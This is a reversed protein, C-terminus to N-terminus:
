KKFTTTTGLLMGNQQVEAVLCSSRTRVQLFKIRDVDVDNPLQALRTATIDGEEITTFALVGERQLVQQCASSLEQHLNHSRFTLALALELGLTILATGVSCLDVQSAAGSVYATFFATRM